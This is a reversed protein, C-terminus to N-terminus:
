KKCHRAPYLLYLNEVGTLAIWSYKEIVNLITAIQGERLPVSGPPMLTAAEDLSDEPIPLLICLAGNVKQWTAVSDGDTSSVNSDGLM